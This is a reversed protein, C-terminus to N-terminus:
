LTLGYESVARACDVRCNTHEAEVGVESHVVVTLPLHLLNAGSDNSCIDARGEGFPPACLHGPLDTAGRQARAWSEGDRPIFELLELLRYPFVALSSRYKGCKAGNNCYENYNMLALIVRM